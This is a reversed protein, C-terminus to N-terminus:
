YNRRRFILGAIIVVSFIIGLIILGREPLQSNELIPKEESLDEKIEYFEFVDFTKVNNKVNVEIWYRGADYLKM